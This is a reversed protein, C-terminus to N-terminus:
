CGDTQGLGSGTTGAVIQARGGCRCQCFLHRHGGFRELTKRAMAENAYSSRVDGAFSDVQAHNLEAMAENLGAENLDTLMVNAGEALFLRATALGIGKMGGTIVATKGKLRM